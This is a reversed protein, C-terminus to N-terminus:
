RTKWSRTVLRKPFIFGTFDIITPQMTMPTEIPILRQGRQDAPPRRAGIASRRGMAEIKMM